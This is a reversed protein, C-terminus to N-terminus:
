YSNNDEKIRDIFYMYCDDKVQKIVYKDKKLISNVADNSIKLLADLFKQEDVNLYSYYESTTFDEVIDPTPLKNSITPMQEFYIGNEDYEYNFKQGEWSLEFEYGGDDIVYREGYDGYYYDPEYYDTVEYDFNSFHVEDLFPRVYSTKNKFTINIVPILYEYYHFKSNSFSDYWGTFSLIINENAKNKITIDPVKVQTYTTDDDYDVNENIKNLENFAEELYM